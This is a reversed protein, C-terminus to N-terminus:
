DNFLLLPIWPLVNAGPVYEDAGIDVREMGNDDGDVIRPDGEFDFNQPYVFPSRNYGEDICPSGNTLHYDGNVWSDDPYYGPTSNDNWYGRDVFFSDININRSSSTWTGSMESYNNYYGIREPTSDSFKIDSVGSAAFNGRIINNYFGVRNDADINAVYVGGAYPGTEIVRNMAITNNILWLDAYKSLDIYAGGGYTLSSNGVIINDGFHVYSGPGQGWDVQVIVGGASSGRNGTIINAKLRVYGPQDSSNHGSYVSIGHGNQIGRVINNYVHIHQVPIGTTNKVAVTLGSTDGNQITFGEIHAAGGGFQRIVLVNGTGGADLITKQPNIAVSACSPTFGGQLAIQHLENSSYWFPGSYIGEVVQIFDNEGNTEAESFASKLELTDSVCFTKAKAGMAMCSLCAATFIGFFLVKSV